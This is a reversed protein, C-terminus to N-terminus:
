HKFQVHKKRFYGNINKHIEPKKTQIEMIKTSNGAKKNPNGHNKNPNEPKKNQNGLCGIIFINLNSPNESRL